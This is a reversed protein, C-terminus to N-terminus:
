SPRLGYFRALSNPSTTNLRRARMKGGVRDLVFYGHGNHFEYRLLEALSLAPSLGVFASVDLETRLLALAGARKGVGAHARLVVLGRESLITAAASFSPPEIYHQLSREVEAVPLPGTRPQPAPQRLVAPDGSGSTPM